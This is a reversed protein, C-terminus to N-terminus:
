LPSEVQIVGENEEIEKLKERLEDVEKLLWYIENEIKEREKSM